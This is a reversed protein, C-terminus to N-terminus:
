PGTFVDDYRVFGSNTTAPTSSGGMRLQIRQGPTVTFSRVEVQAGPVCGPAMQTPVPTFTHSDIQTTGAEDLIQVLATVPHLGGWVSYTLRTHGGPVRFTQHIYGAAGHPIDLSAYPNGPRGVCDFTSILFQPFTGGVTVQNLTMQGWHNYGDSFNGNQLGAGAEVTFTIQDKAIEKDNNHVKVKVVDKSQDAPNAGPAFSYSVNPTTSNFASVQQHTADSLLGGAAGTVEWQYTLNLGPINDPELTANIAVTDSSQVTRDRPSLTVKFDEALALNRAGRYDFRNDPQAVLFSPESDPTFAEDVTRAHGDVPDPITLLSFFRFVASNAFTLHTIDTFGVVTRAGSAMLADKMSDNKLSLCASCVVLTDRMPRGAYTHRFFEPLLAVHGELDGKEVIFLRGTALGLEVADIQLTTFVGTCFGVQQGQYEWGFEDALFGNGYTTGHTSIYIVGFADMDGFREFNAGFNLRTTTPYGVPKAEELSKKTNAADGTGLSAAYPALVLGKTVDPIIRNNAERALKPLRRPKLIRRTKRTKLPTVARASGAGCKVGDLTPLVAGLVGNRFQVWVGFGESPGVLKVAPNRELLTQVLSQAQAHSGTRQVEAQYADFAQRLQAQAAALDTDPIRTVVFISVIESRVIQGAVSAEVRYFLKGPQNSQLRFQGSFNFTNAPATLRGIEGQTIGNADVQLLRVSNRDLQASAATSLSFVVEVPQNVFFSDPTATLASTFALGNNLTIVRTIRATGSPSTATLTVVNDGAQLPIAASWNQTGNAIGNAGGVAWKVETVGTSAQGTLPVPNALTTFARAGSPTLVVLGPPQESRALVQEQSVSGGGSSNQNGGDQGCAFLWAALLLLFGFRIRM